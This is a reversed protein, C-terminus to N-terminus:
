LINYGLFTIIGLITACLNAILYTRKRMKSKKLMYMNIPVLLTIYIGLLIFGIFFNMGWESNPVEYASSNPRNILFGYIAPIVIMDAFGWFANYFISLSLILDKKTKEDYKLSSAIFCIFIYLVVITLAYWIMM